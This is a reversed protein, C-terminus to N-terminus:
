FLQKFRMRRKLCVCKERGRVGRSFYLIFFFCFSEARAEASWIVSARARIDTEAIKSAELKLAAWNPSLKVDSCFCAKSLLGPVCVASIGLRM